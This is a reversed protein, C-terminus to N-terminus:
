AKWLMGIASLKEIKENNLKGAKQRHRQSSIWHGLPFDNDTRYANKVDLNGNTEYYKKAEEYGIQWKHEHTNWVIGYSQFFSIDELSLLGKKYAKKKGALWQALPSQNISEAKLLPLISKHEQYYRKLEERMKNDYEKAPNWILGIEELSHVRESSLQGNRYYERLHSVWKGLHTGDATIYNPPVDCNGHEENYDMLHQFNNLWKTNYINIDVIQTLREKQSKTLYGRKARTIQRYKWQQIANIEGQPFCCNGNLYDKLLVYKEDWERDTYRKYEELATAYDRAICIDISVEKNNLYVLLEKIAREISSYNSHSYKGVCIRYDCLIDETLMYERLRILTIGNQMCITYKDNDKKVSDNHWRGDYEIAVKCQPIYIDIEIGLFDSPYLKKTDPFVSQVYYFVLMEPVSSRVGLGSPDWVIDLEDLLMIQDLTIKSKGGGSIGNQNNKYAKRMRSLWQGLKTGDECIYGIPINLNGYRAYYEKAKEYHTVFVSEQHNWVIKLYGLKKIQEQSLKGKKYATKQDALWRYYEDGPKFDINGNTKYHDFVKAYQEDWNSYPKLEVGVTTLLNIYEKPLKNSKYLLRQRNIWSRESTGVQYTFYGGNMDFDKKIKNFMSYWKKEKETM